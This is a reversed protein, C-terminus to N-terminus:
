EKKTPSGKAPAPETQIHQKTTVPAVLTTKTGAIGPQNLTYIEPWYTLFAQPIRVEEGTTQKYATIFAM